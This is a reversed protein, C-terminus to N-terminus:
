EEIIRGPTWPANIEELKQEIKEAEKTLVKLKEIVPPLQENIIALQQKETETVDSTSGSHTWYTNSMRKYIPLKHPPIEEYSAKASVGHMEFRVDQLAKEVEQVQNMLEIDAAATKLVTQKITAIKKMLESLYSSTGYVKRATEDLDAFYADLAAKDKAPLTTNTLRKVNFDVPEGMAKYSGQHYMGMEVSYKGPLALMGSRESKFPSFKGDSAETPFPNDYTLDWATRSLGASPKATFKQVTKGESNKVTFLLYTAEENEEELLEKWSPQPIKESNEFLKKEKEKRLQKSTKPVEKLYYSFVAGFPPNEALWLTAGQGYQKSTQIYQLADKVPFIHADTNKVFDDTLTRLPSYDDIIYFGRGFTALVIDSEREQIAIDAVQIDPMGKDFEIWKEGGNVSFFFSFETGLFLLDKKKFDQELTHVTGNEPLNNSISKWTRGKNTSKYVYPKFDDSKFNSLTAFVVNEDFRDAKIDSIYCYDPAGPFNNAVRWNEGGDESVRLMGDDSGVYLLGEKIPSEDLSVITGYLSTSVDKVVADTSWFKGMVKWTNRDINATLDGGLTTWSSGRDDSRFLKNAAIYLRKKNHPSIIFPANWNWRYSLEDKAPYPKIRLREGSKKDYRFINGYQYESYVIDPNDPDVAGWFGDGGLTPAWDTSPVGHRSINRSPGGLSNNDQTGGYVNYFPEANDVYVRYFQTVPLNPVFRWNAGMDYTEYVGGDGGIILHDTDSPDIWLAHDDVHREDRGLRKWTKGGDETYHSYTEVSFVKNPDKPDCFIENYYQGSSSHDSMKNWSEGKDTSRFFGGTEGEAEIIAYVYNPNAPSVDIGMGGVHGSPLGSTLKRWNKGGDESKYIASEPGGGIKTFFTRRRQESSAYMINPNEPDMIVNNVGTNESIELVKTWNKGGDTTQYLGRDGGPGWVSGEAAAFVIDSNEPHIVIMGIQRSEKLGMNTWSKGGDTSKYVGNGYGLARQHNNEGTGIWLTNHNNPDMTICGMSYAGYNDFVPKFTIGKNETKWVHGSAAAVYYESNNDPNVAFDSIRGSTLAPGISRFKLGSLVKQNLEKAGDDQASVTHGVFFFLATLLSLLIKQKM